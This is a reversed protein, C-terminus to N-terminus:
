SYYNFQLILTQYLNLLDYLHLLPIFIQQFSANKGDYDTCLVNILNISIWSAWCHPQKASSEVTRAFPAKEESHFGKCSQIGLQAAGGRSHSSQSHSKAYLYCYRRRAAFSLLLPQCVLMIFTTIRLGNQLDVPFYILEFAPWFLCSTPTEEIINIVVVFM